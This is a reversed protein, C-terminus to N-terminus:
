GQDNCVLDYDVQLKEIDEKLTRWEDARDVPIVGDFAALRQRLDRSFAGTWPTSTLPYGPPIDTM